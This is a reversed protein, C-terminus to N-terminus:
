QEQYCKREPEPIRDLAAVCNTSLTHNENYYKQKHTHSHKTPCKSGVGFVRFTEGMIDKQFIALHAVNPQHQERRMVRDKVSSSVYNNKGRGLYHLNDCM